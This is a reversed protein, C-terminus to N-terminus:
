LYRLFGDALLAAAVHFPVARLVALRAAAFLLSSPCELNMIRRASRGDRLYIRASVCGDRSKNTLCILWKETMAM